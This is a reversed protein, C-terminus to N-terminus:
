AEMQQNLLTMHIHDRWQGNIKLYRRALGEQKFGLKEVVRLSRVNHPMINAEIRHLGYQRFMLEIGFELAETMYGRNIEAQDLKYGLFCSCFDGYLLNTFSIMGIVREPDERKFLWLKLMQERRIMRYEAALDRRQGRRTFFDADRQPEWERLFAENRQYYDCVLKADRGKLVRLILRDTYYVTRM